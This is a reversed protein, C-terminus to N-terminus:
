MVRSEINQNGVASIRRGLWGVASVAGFAALILMTAHVIADTPAVGALVNIFRKIYIPTIIGAIQALFVGTFTVALLWPHASSARTYRRLVPGIRVEKKPELPPM